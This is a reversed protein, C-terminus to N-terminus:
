IGKNLSNNLWLISFFFSFIIAILGIRDLEWLKSIILAYDQSQWFLRTGLM